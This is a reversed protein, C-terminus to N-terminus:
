RPLRVQFHVADLIRGDDPHRLSLRHQGPEPMWDLPSDAPGLDREDLLFRAQNVGRARFWVKQNDVPIDPDLAIIVGDPPSEIRARHHEDGAQVRSTETGAIFWEVREPEVPPDFRVTSRILRDPVKPPSDIAEAMLGNMIMAWAPAAGSVGSVERMADGEFNGVWVGVTHRQSYGICWNDRMDKSTGTKVASWYRTALPSDLGFTVSRSAEDSLVDGILFAAEESMVRRRASHGGTDPLFRLPSWVGGNALARYANVQELLSVEASGLALSFGYYEGAETLGAYGLDVLRDRFAEVGVLILTRVAPVNLSAALATRMSVRGKFEHDYNQPIYLGTSTELNVPTDDLLSATTLYRRELALGYLFPKLTSGAQRRAAAGDVEAASSMAGASGVYALVEGTPNDVIIAAGDRVNRGALGALQEELAERALRQWRADLTSVLREGPQHLLRRALHAAERPGEAHVPRSSKLVEGALRELAPCDVSFRGARAIACARATLRPVAANPAPLLAALLIAEPETLGSADKGFLSKTNAAIGQWEGRFSSRNLYAELIEDKTWTRELALATAMQRLKQILRRGSRGNNLRNDLLGALQMTLTSAGRLHGTRPWDAVASLLGPGDLGGHEYFRRDEALLIAKILAPSIGALPTWDLRRIARDQRVQQLVAGHRDLLIADSPIWSARVEAFSPPRILRSEAWFVFGSLGAVLLVLLGWWAAQRLRAGTRTSGSSM